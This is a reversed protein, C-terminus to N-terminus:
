RSSGAGGGWCPFLVCCGRSVTEDERAAKHDDTLAVAMGNRCLVARSDGAACALVRHAQLARESALPVQLPWPYCSCCVKRLVMFKFYLHVIMKLRALQAAHAFGRKVLYQLM